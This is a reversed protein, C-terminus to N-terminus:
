EGLVRSELAHLKDQNEQSQDVSKLTKAVM